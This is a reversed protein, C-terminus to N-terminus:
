PTSTSLSPSLTLRRRFLQQQNGKMKPESRSNTILMHSAQGERKRWSLRRKSRGSISIRVKQRHRMWVFWEGLFGVYEGRDSRLGSVNQLSCAYEGDLVM